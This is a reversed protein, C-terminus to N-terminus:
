PWVCRAGRMAGNRRGPHLGHGPRRGAGAFPSEGLRARGADDGLRRGQPGAPHGRGSASGRDARQYLFRPVGHRCPNGEAANGGATGHLGAGQARGGSPRRITSTRRPPCRHACRFGRARTRGWTVYPSLGAADITVEKDFTADADTVLTRWYDVAADFDAPRATQGPLYEFTTEDPGIMGARAGAEISMNCITM